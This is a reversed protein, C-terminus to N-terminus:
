IVVRHALCELELVDLVRPNSLAEDSEIVLAAVRDVHFIGEEFFDSRCNLPAWIMTDFGSEHYTTSTSRCIQQLSARCTTWTLTGLQTTFTLGHTVAALLALFSSPVLMLFIAVM